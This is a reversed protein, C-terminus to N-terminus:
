DWSLELCDRSSMSPEVSGDQFPFGKQLFDFRDAMARASSSFPGPNGHGSGTSRAGSFLVHIAAWAM